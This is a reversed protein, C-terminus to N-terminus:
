PLSEAIAKLEERSFDGDVSFLWQGSIWTFSGSKRGSGREKLVMWAADNGKINDNINEESIFVSGSAPQSQSVAFDGIDSSYILTIYDWPPKGDGNAGNINPEVGLLKAGKPLKGPLIIKFTTKKKTEDLSILEDPTHKGSLTGDEVIRFGKEKMAKADNVMKQTFEDRETSNESLEKAIEAAPLIELRGKSASPLDSILFAATLGALIGLSLVIFSKDKIIKVALQM